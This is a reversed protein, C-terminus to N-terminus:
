KLEEQTHNLRLQGVFEVTDFVVNYGASGDAIEEHAKGVVVCDTNAKCIHFNKAVRCWPVNFPNGKADQEIVKVTDYEIVTGACAYRSYTRKGEVHESEDQQAYAPAAVLLAATVLLFKKM